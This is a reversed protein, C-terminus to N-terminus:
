LLRLKNGLKRGDAKKSHCKTEAAGNLFCSWVPFEKLTDSWKLRVADELMLLM